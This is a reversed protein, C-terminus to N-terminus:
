VVPVPPLERLFDRLPKTQIEVFICPSELEREPGVQLPVTTLGLLGTEALAELEAVREPSRCTTLIDESGRLDRYEPLYRGAQRMFWVPTRDVPERALARLLRDNALATM